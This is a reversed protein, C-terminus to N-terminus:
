SLKKRKLSAAIFCAILVAIPGLLSEPVVYFGANNIDLDDIADCEDDYFGPIGDTQCDAFIDYHGVAASEWILVPQGEILGNEDVEVRIPGEVIDLDSIHVYDWKGIGWSPSYDRIIYIYYYGGRDLGAGRVYVEEGPYFEDKFNGQSDCSEFFGILLEDDNASRDKYVLSVSLSMIFILITATALVKKM